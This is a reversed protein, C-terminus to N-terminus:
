LEITVELSDELEIAESDDLGVTNSRDLLETEDSEEVIDLMELTM